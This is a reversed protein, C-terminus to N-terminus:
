SRLKWVWGEKHLLVTRWPPGQDAARGEGSATSLSNRETCSLVGTNEMEQTSLPCPSSNANEIQIINQKVKFPPVKWLYCILFMKLTTSSFLKEGFANIHMCVCCISSSCFSVCQVARGCWCLSCCLSYFGITHTCSSVVCPIPRECMETKGELMCM